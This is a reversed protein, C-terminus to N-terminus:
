CRPSSVRISVEQSPQRCPRLSLSSITRRWSHAGSVVVIREPGRTRSRLVRPRGVARPVAQQSRRRHRGRLFPWSRLARGRPRGGGSIRGHSSIRHGQAPSRHFLCLWQSRAIGLRAPPRVHTHPCASISPRIRTPRAARTRCTALSPARLPSFSFCFSCPPDVCCSPDAFVALPPPPLRVALDVARL